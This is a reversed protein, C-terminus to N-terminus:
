SIKEELGRRQLSNFQSKLAKFYHKLADHPSLPNLHIDSDSETAAMNFFTSQGPYFSYFCDVAWMKMTHIRGRVPIQLTQGQTALVM